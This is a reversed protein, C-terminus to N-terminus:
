RPEVVQELARRSLNAYESRPYDYIVRQLLERIKEPRLVVVGKPSKTLQQMQILTAAHWYLLAAMDKDSAAFVKEAQVFWAVAEEPRSSVALWQGAKLAVPGSNDHKPFREVFKQAISVADAFQEGRAYYNMMRIMAMPVHPDDPHHYTLLM